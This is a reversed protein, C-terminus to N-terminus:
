KVAKIKNLYYIELKKDLFIKKKIRLYQSKIRNKMFISKMNNNIMTNHYKIYNIIGLIKYNKFVKKLIEEDISDEKMKNFIINIKEKEINWNILYINLLNITKNIQMINAESLFIIKDSKKMIEKTYNFNLETATDIIIVDYNNKEKEIIDIFEKENIKENGFIINTGSVINIYKNIKIIEKNIKNKNIYNKIENFNNNSKEVGFLTHISNNFIELDIILIKKKDKQLSKAINVTFVSKGVGGIGSVTIIKGYKKENNKKNNILKIIKNKESYKNEIEKEIKEQQLKNKIEMNKQEIIKNLKQIEKKLDENNNKSIILEALEKIKIQNNYFINIKKNIKIKNELDENEKELILIINIKNNIEKIKNILNEIEIEGPLIESLIIYDIENQKELIEIIGEKYQIDRMIVKINKYEKLKDNVNENGLATIIKKM